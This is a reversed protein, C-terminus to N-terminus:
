VARKRRFVGGLGLASAFLVAGAPLPVESVETPLMASLAHPTFITTLLYVDVVVDNLGVAIWTSYDDPDGFYDVGYVAGNNDITESFVEFSELPTDVIDTLPTSSSLGFYALAAALAEEETAGSWSEGPEGIYTLTGGGPGTLTVSTYFDEYETATNINVNVNVNAGAASVAFLALAGAFAAAAGKLGTGSVGKLHRFIGRGSM